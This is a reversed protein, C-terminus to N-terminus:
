TRTESPCHRPKFVHDMKKMRTEGQHESQRRRFVDIHSIIYTIEGDHQLSVQRYKHFCRSRDHSANQNGSERRERRMASVNATLDVKNERKSESKHKSEEMGRTARTESAKVLPKSVSEQSSQRM